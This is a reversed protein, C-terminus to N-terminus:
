GNRNMGAGGRRGSMDLLRELRTAATEVDSPLKGPGPQNARCQLVVIRLKLGLQPSEEMLGVLEEDTLNRNLFALFTLYSNACMDAMDRLLEARGPPGSPPGLPGYTHWVRELLQVDRTRAGIFSLWINLWLISSPYNATAVYSQVERNLTGLLDDVLQSSGPDLVVLAAALAARAEARQEEEHARRLGSEEPSAGIDALYQVAPVAVAPDAQVLAVLQQTIASPVPNRPRGVTRLGLLVCGMRDQWQSVAEREGAQPRPRSLESALAGWAQEQALYRSIGDILEPDTASKLRECALSVDPTGMQRLHRIGARAIRPSHHLLAAQSLRELRQAASGSPILPYRAVAELVRHRVIASPPDHFLQELVGLVKEPSETRFMEVTESTRQEDSEDWGLVAEEIRGETADRCGSQMVFLGLLSCVLAIAPVKEVKGRIM